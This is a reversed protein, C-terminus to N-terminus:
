RCPPTPARPSPSCAIAGSPPRARCACAGGRGIRGDSPSSCPWPARRPWCSAGSPRAPLARRGRALALGAAWATRAFGLGPLLLWAAGLSGVIAGATNVAYLRGQAAPGPQEDLLWPLATGLLLVPPALLLLTVGLRAMQGLFFSRQLVPAFLDFREVLPTLCLIAVGAAALLLGLLARSGRRRLLPALHAGAALPLLVSVLMFAFSSVTSQFTARLSRFWAVELCFTVAGTAFAVLLDLRPTSSNAAHIAPAAEIAATATPQERSSLLWATLVVLLNLCVVLRSTLLVGAAPLFAFSVLVVGATAGATNLGYLTSLSLGHRRALTGFVPITAGMALSPVGLLTVIGTLHLV